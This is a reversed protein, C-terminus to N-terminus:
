VEKPTHTQLLKEIAKLDLAEIKKLDREILKPDIPNGLSVPGPPPDLDRCKLFRRHKATAEQIVASLRLAAEHTVCPGSWLNIEVRDDELERHRQCHREVLARETQLRQAEPKTERIRAMGAKLAEILAHAVYLNVIALGGIGFSFFAVALPNTVNEFLATLWHLDPAASPLAGIVLDAPSQLLVGGADLNIVGSTLLGLGILYFGVLFPALRRIFTVIFHERPQCALLHFATLMIIGTLAMLGPSWYENSTGAIAQFTRYLLDFEIGLVLLFLGGDFLMRLYILWLWRAAKLAENVKTEMKLRTQQDFM